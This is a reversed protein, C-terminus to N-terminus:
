VGRGARDDVRNGHATIGIADGRIASVDPHGVVVVVRHGFEIGRGPRNEVGNGYAGPGPADGGVCGIGPYHVGAAARDGLDSALALEGGPLQRARRLRQHRVHLHRVDLRCPNEPPNIGGSIQRRFALEDAPKPRSICYGQAVDCGYETLLNLTEVDEIGEAVIRLGLAHGLEITSRVVDLDRHQRGDAVRSIFSRDLKLEQVALDRLYALSTVGAGFDDISVVIGSDRLDEIVRQCTEFEAIVNAETLELVLGAPPM